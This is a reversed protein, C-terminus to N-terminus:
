SLSGILVKNTSIHQKRFLSLYVKADSSTYILFERGKVASKLHTHDVKKFSLIYVYLHIYAFNINGGFHGYRYSLNGLQMSM